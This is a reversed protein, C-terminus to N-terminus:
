GTTRRNLDTVTTLVFAYDLALERLKDYRGSAGGHGAGM